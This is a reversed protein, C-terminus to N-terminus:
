CDITDSGVFEPCIGRCEESDLGLEKINVDTILRPIRRINTQRLNSLLRTDIPTLHQFRQLNVIFRSNEKEQKETSVGRYKM